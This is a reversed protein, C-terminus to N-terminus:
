VLYHGDATWGPESDVEVLTFDGTAYHVQPPHIIFQDGPRLIHEQDDVHLHLEGELVSYTEVADKHYHPESKRIAAIAKNHAPHESSPEVECIIETTNDAPLAVVNKGPYTENFHKLIEEVTM